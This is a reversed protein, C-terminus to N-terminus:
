NNQVTGGHKKILGLVQDFDKEVKKQHEEPRGHEMFLELLESRAEESEDFAVKKLRAMWTGSVIGDYNGRKKVIDSFLGRRNKQNEKMTKLVTQLSAWNKKRVEAGHAKNSSINHSCKTCSRKNSRTRFPQNCRECFDISLPNDRLFKGWLIYAATRGAANHSRQGRLKRMPELRSEYDTHPKAGEEWEFMGAPLASYELPMAAWEIRAQQAKRMAEAEAPCRKCWLIVPNHEKRLPTWSDVLEAITSLFTEMADAPPGKLRAMTGRELGACQTNIAGAFLLAAIDHSSTVGELIPKNKDTHHNWAATFAELPHELLAHLRKAEAAQAVIAPHNNM